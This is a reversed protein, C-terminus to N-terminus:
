VTHVIYWAAGRQIACSERLNNITSTIAYRITRGYVVRWVVHTGSSNSCASASHQLLVIRFLITSIKYALLEKAGNRISNTNGNQCEIVRQKEKNTLTPRTVIM